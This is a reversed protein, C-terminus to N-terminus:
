QRPMVQSLRRASTTLVPLESATTAMLAATFAPVQRHSTVFGLPRQQRPSTILTRFPIAPAAM